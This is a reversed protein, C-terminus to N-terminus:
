YGHGGDDGGDSEGSDGGGEVTNTPLDTGNGLPPPPPSTTPPAPPPPPDDYDADDESNSGGGCGPDDNSSGCGSEDAYQVPITVSAADNSFAYVVGGSLMLGLVAFAAILQFIFSKRGM